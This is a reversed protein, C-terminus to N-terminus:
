AVADERICGQWGVADESFKMQCQTNAFLLCTGVIRLSWTVVFYLYYGLSYVSSGSM